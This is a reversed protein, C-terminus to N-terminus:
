VAEFASCVCEADLALFLPLLTDELYSSTHAAPSYFPHLLSFSPPVHLQTHTHTLSLSLSLSLTPTSVEGRPLEDHPRGCLVWPSCSVGREEEWRWPACKYMKLKRIRLQAVEGISHELAVDQQRGDSVHVLLHVILLSGHPTSKANDRLFRLFVWLDSLVASGGRRQASKSPATFLAALKTGGRGAGCV